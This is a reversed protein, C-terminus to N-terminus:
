GTNIIRYQRGTLVIETQQIRENAQKMQHLDVESPNSLVMRDLLAQEDVSLTERLSSLKETLIELANEINAM